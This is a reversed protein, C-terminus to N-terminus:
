VGAETAGAEPAAQLVPLPQGPLDESSSSPPETCLELEQAPEPSAPLAALLQSQTQQAMAMPVPPPCLDPATGLFGIAVLCALTLVVALVLIGVRKFSEPARSSKPRM